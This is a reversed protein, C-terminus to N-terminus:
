AGSGDNVWRYLDTSITFSRTQISGTKWSVTISIRIEDQTGAVFAAKVTRTFNTDVWGTEYGYLTGDTQLPACEGSCISIAQAPDSKRTDITFPQDNLPIPGFLNISSANASKAIQLVQSDRIARVSEIAEQALYFATVQDRAYYASSLSQAALAMPAVIAVTLLSIAVLTEILTFGGNRAAYKM